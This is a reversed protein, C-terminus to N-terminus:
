LPRRHSLQGEKKKKREQGSGEDHGGAAELISSHHYNPRGCFILEEFAQIQAKVTSILDYPRPHVQGKLVIRGDELQQGAFVLLHDPPIGLKEHIDEKVSAITDIAGVGFESTNGAFQM